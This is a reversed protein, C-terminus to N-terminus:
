MTGLDHECDKVVVRLLESSDIPECVLEDALRAVSAELRDSSGM